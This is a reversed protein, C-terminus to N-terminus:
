VTNQYREKSAWGSFVLHLILPLDLYRETSMVQIQKADRIYTVAAAHVGQPGADRDRNGAAM